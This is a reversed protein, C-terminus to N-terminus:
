FEVEMSLVRVRAEIAKKSCNKINLYEALQKQNDFYRSRSISMNLRIMVKIKENYKLIRFFVQTFL